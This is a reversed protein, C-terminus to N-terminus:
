DHKITIEMDIECMRLAHQLEHVSNVPMESIDLCGCHADIYTYYHTYNRDKLYVLIMHEDETEYVFADKYVTGQVFGNQELLEATLPIPEIEDYDYLDNYALMVMREKIESVQEPQQNFTNYVWDGIMIDQPKMMDNRKKLKLGEPGIIKSNLKQKIKLTAVGFLMM